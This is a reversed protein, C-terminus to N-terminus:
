AKGFRRESMAKVLKPEVQAADCWRPLSLTTFCTAAEPLFEPGRASGDEPSVLAELKIEIAAGGSAPVAALATVWSFLSFLREDSAGRIWERLLSHPWPAAGGWKAKAEEDTPYTILENLTRADITSRGCLLLHLQTPPFLALHSTLDVEASADQGPGALLFGDRLSRLAALRSDRLVQQPM